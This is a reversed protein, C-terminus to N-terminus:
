KGRRGRDKRQHQRHRNIGLELQLEEWKTYQDKSLITKVKQKFAIMKDLRANRLAFLEDTSMDKKARKEPGLNM